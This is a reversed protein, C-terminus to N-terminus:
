LYSFYFPSSHYTSYSSKCGKWLYFINYIVQAGVFLIALKFLKPPRTLDDNSNRSVNLFSFFFFKMFWREDVGGGSTEGERM